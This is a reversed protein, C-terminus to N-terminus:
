QVPPTPESPERPDKANIPVSHSRTIAQLIAVVAGVLIMIIDNNKDINRTILEKNGDVVPTISLYFNASILCLIVVLMGIFVLREFSLTESVFAQIKQRDFM